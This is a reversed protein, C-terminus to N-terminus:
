GRYYPIGGDHRAERDFDFRHRPNDVLMFSKIVFGLNKHKYPALAERIMKHDCSYCYLDTVLRTAGEPKLSMFKCFVDYEEEPTRHNLPEAYENYIIGQSYLDSLTNVLDWVKQNRRSTVVRIHDSHPHDKLEFKTEEEAGRRCYIIFHLSPDTINAERFSDVSDFSYFVRDFGGELIQRKLAEPPTPDYYDIVLAKNEMRGGFHRALCTVCFGPKPLKYPPPSTTLHIKPNQTLYTSPITHPFTRRLRARLHLNLPPRPHYQLHLLLAKSHKNVHFFSISHQAKFQSSFVKFQSSFVWLFIGFERYFIGM